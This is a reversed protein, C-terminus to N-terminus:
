NQSVPLTAPGTSSVVVPPTSAATAFQTKFRRRRIDWLLFTTIIRILLNIIAMALSFQDISSHQFVPGFRTGMILIDMLICFVQLQLCLLLPAISDGDQFTHAWFLSALFIVNVFLYSLPVWNGILVLSILIFHTVLIAKLMETPNYKLEPIKKDMKDATHLKQKVVVVVGAVTGCSSVLPFKSGCCYVPYRYFVFLGDGATHKQDKRHCVLKLFKDVPKQWSWTCRINERYFQLQAGSATSKNM